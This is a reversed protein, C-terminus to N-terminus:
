SVYCAANEEIFGVLAAPCRLRKLGYLSQSWNIRSFYIGDNHRKNAAVIVGCDALRAV